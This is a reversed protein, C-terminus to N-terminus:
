TDADPDRARARRGQARPMALAADLVGLQRKLSRQATREMERYQRVLTQGFPTLSAGGGARGGTSKEVVPERFSKGLADVLTWARRYSMDMARGAASISGTEGILELLRIKGPGLSEAGDFDIRLMLRAMARHYRSRRRSALRHRGLASRVM